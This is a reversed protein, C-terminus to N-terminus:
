RRVPTPGTAAVAAFTRGASTWIERVSYGVAVAHRILAEIGVEAWGFHPGVPRGHRTFRLQLERDLKPDEAAEVLLLGGPELLSHVRSLLKVVDGGIGINGDMLLVVPWCGEAPAPDFVSRMIATGGGRRTLAVATPAIDLGLSPLGLTTAARVFRGPGCGVDLVPGHCRALVSRDADDLDALWREIDLEILQGDDAVLRLPSQERLSREYPALAGPHM